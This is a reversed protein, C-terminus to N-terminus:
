PQRSNGSRNRRARRPAKRSSTPASGPEREDLRAPGIVLRGAHMQCAILLRFWMPHLGRWTRQCVGRDHRCNNRNGAAFRGGSRMDRTQM